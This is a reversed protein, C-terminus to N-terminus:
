LLRGRSGGSCCRAQSARIPGNPKRTTNGGLSGNGQPIAFAFNKCVQFKMQFENKLDFHLVNTQHFILVLPTMAWETTIKNIIDHM